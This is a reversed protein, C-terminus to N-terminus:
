YRCSVLRSVNIRPQTISRRCKRAGDPAIAASSDAGPRRSASYKALITTSAVDM